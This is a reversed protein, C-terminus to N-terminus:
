KSGRRRTKRCTKRSKRRRSGGELINATRLAAQLTAAEKEGFPHDWDNSDEIKVTLDRISKHTITESPIFVTVYVPQRTVSNPITHEMIMTIKTIGDDRSTRLASLTYEFDGDRKLDLKLVRRTVDLIKKTIPFSAM